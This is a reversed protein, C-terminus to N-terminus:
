PGMHIFPAWLSINDGNSNKARLDLVAHHLAHPVSSVTGADQKLLHEYFKAAVAVAASDFAGWLTGIVHRFGALQFTTAMDISEDILAQAGIEATSCASLYAVQALQHNLPQLDGITLREVSRAGLLLASKSPQEVDSAGHCAFHVLSCATVQELVTAATPTELVEVLASSGIHQQIAAVEEEVNLDAYGLTKHMKIILIKSDKTTPPTWTKKRSFQLAKLSPMYSSVIHSMTNETSGLQHDGAAHLPLLAMLGGGVWWLCPLIPPPELQWLLGLNELVPKVAVDWLWHMSETQTNAHLNGEVKSSGDIAVLKADRRSQNGSKNMSVQKQIDELILKPLPLVQVFQETILFAHSGFSTVNFSVIPGCQALDHLETETLPLQFRDFEPEKRVIAKIVDLEKIMLSRALTVSSYYGGPLLPLSATNSAASPLTSAAIRERLYCYRSWLDPHREELMPDDCRSDIVFSSIIGCSKELAQLSELASRGAKLFVSAALSGLGSLRRLIYQLDEHSNSRRVIMPLLDLCETLYQAGEDYQGCWSAMRAAQIGSQVCNFPPSSSDYLAETYHIFAEQLDEMSQKRLYRTWMRVGLNSLRRARDPDDESTTNIAAQGSLIAKDLDDASGTQQYQISFIDGLVSLCSGRESPGSFDRAADVAAQGIQIAKELDDMSRTVLFLDQFLVALRRLPLARSPHFEPTADVTAQAIRISKELDDMSGTRSFRHHFKIGLNALHGAREASNEPTADIAAQGIRIAEELDSIAKTRLFLEFLKNGLNHLHLTRDPHNEPTANVASHEIRIAEELDDKLADVSAKKVRKSEDLDSISGTRLFSKYLLDGLDDLLSYRYQPPGEATDAIARKIRIAKELDDM